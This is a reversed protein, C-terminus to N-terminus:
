RFSLNNGSGHGRKTFRRTKGSVPKTKLSSTPEKAGRKKKINPYTYRIWKNRAEPDARALLRKPRQVSFGIQALIKRVHGPHYDLEFEEQIVKAIMPSTWVGGTFGYAVPGSDIIDGLIIKHDESLGAPRGPRHGELLGEYGHEEYRKLWESVCSRPSRLLSAIDGSTKGDHNLLVAHIRKSVRYAGEKEASRKDRAMKELTKPHLSLSRAQM